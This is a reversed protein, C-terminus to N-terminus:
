RKSEGRRYVWSVLRVPSEPGGSRDLWRVEIAVKKATTDGVDPTIAVAVSGGRLTTLTAPALRISKAFEPTLEDWPRATIREMVNAAEQFARQRHETALRESAMGVVMQAVLVLAAVLLISSVAVEAIGFGRRHRQTPAHRKM